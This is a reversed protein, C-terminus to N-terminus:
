WHLNAVDPIYETSLTGDPNITVGIFDIWAETDLQHQVIYHNAAKVLYSMKRRTLAEVPTTLSGAQRTKVEVFHYHGEPSTAIIDIEHPASRWNREVILYGNSRLWQMAAEEGEKGILLTNAM